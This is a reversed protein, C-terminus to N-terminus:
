TTSRLSARTLDAVETLVAGLAAPDHARRGLFLGDVSGDLQRLLGPGASGGYILRTEAPVAALEARLATAVAIIHEPSAAREAGISWIPEYAVVVPLTWQQLSLERLQTLCFDAAAQANEAPDGAATRDSEGVCVIPTLGNAAARTLEGTLRAGDHGRARQEAHGILVYRCGFEALTEASVEGTQAGDASPALGQAGWRVPSGSLLQQAAPLMPFSPLVVLEPAAAPDASELQDALQRVASLWRSTREASFYMKLSVAVLPRRARVGAQGDPARGAPLTADTSGTM